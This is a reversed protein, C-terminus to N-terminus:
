ITLESRLSVQILRAVKARSLNQVLPYILGTTTSETTMDGGDIIDAQSLVSGAEYREM